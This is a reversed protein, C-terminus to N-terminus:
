NQAQLEALKAALGALEGKMERLRAEMAPARSLSKQKESIIAQQQANIDRELNAIRTRLATMGQVRQVKDAAEKAKRQREAEEKVMKESDDVSRQLHLDARREGALFLEKEKPDFQYLDQMDDPLVEYPIATIGGAHQVHMAQATVKNVKVKTFVKGDRTRLEDMELGKAKDRIAARYANKYNDIEEVQSAVQNRMAVVDKALGDLSGARIQNERNVSALEKSALELGPLVELRKRVGDLKARGDEIEKTQEAIVAELSKGKGQMGEDFAFLFLLAFVVLVLLALLMGVVGPGRGSSM